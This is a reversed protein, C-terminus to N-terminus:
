LCMVLACVWCYQLDVYLSDFVGEILEFQKNMDGM